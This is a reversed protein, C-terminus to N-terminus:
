WRFIFDKDTSLSKLLDLDMADGEIIELKAHNKFLSSAKQKNRVLITLPINSELLTQTFAYGISGTAGLVLYKTKMPTFSDIKPVDVMASLYIGAVNASVPM